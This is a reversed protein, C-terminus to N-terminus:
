DKLIRSPDSRLNDLKAKFAEGPDVGAKKLMQEARLGINRSDRYFGEDREKGPTYSSLRDGQPLHFNVPSIVRKMDKSGCYECSLDEPDQHRTVLISVLGGCSTCEYEYIPM